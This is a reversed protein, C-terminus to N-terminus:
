ESHVTPTALADFVAAVDDIADLRMLRHIAEDIRGPAIVGDANSRFKRIYDEESIPNARTGRVSEIVHELCSGDNLRIRVHAGAKKPDASQSAHAEYVVKDALANIVPDALAEPSYAHKDMGGRVLAEALSHQLSIRGHWSTLPRLKEAAPECLTAVSSPAIRCRIEAIDAPAIAHAAKLALVADVYPHITFASPYPKSAVNLLEWRSGLGDTALAYRFASPDAKQVHTQFWGFRGEFVLRPGSIGERGLAVARAAQSAAMGVHLTKTSAGDEWSAMLGGCMSACHGIADVVQRCDLHELWALAYVAGFAGMIATPHIGVSHLRMPPVLGLRCSLESGIIVAQMLRAGSLHSSQCYPLAISFPAVTPHVFSEIHTDDFELLSSMVGNVFAAGSLSLSQDFGLSKAQSGADTRAMARVAAHVPELPRAALMVGVADLIQLRALDKVDRPIDTWSLNTAWDALRESMGHM